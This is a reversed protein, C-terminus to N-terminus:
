RRDRYTAHCDKCSTRVLVFRADLESAPAGAVIAEELASAKAVADALRRAFDDGLDAVEADEGSIRMNDALRGAEAAPVLDPHDTPVRWGAARITNLHEFALDVEVMAGVIGEAERAAPFEAPAADLQEPTAACAISVSAYLGEYHSATGAIKMFEVGQEPSVLGLAIAAAATAAPSRHKGHHCHVYIPGTVNALVGALGQVDAPSMESYKLPLHVYRLGLERATDVHPVAGDVSVITKVGLSALFRFDDYSEPGSGCYVKDGIRFLNHVTTSAVPGYPEEGRREQSQTSTFM